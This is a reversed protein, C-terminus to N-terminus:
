HELVLRGRNWVPVPNGDQDAARNSCGDPCANLDDLALLGDLGDQSEVRQDNTQRQQASFASITKSTIPM